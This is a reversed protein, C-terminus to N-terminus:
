EFSVQHAHENIDLFPHHAHTVKEGNVKVNRIIVGAVYREGSYGYIRSPNAGQGNYEINQLVINEIRNGPVPNYDKNWVVRIDFLRGLEFHEVRINDYTIHRVTNLDGANITMAGQYNEQPEHHELIDINEFRIHEIIDGNKHYNGHTGIMLPHAVDAWFSSNRVTIHRSDGTYDWRSGYIAISDDSTRLFIDDIDIFSSSMIDIGDSWGKCSFSKFNHIRIHESGGIYISYHPPNLTTIGEVEINSSFLIRVGRFATFRHFEALYVIGRGRITVDKVHDCVMSGVVAAGGAIYITKGSPIKLLTEEIYHLGPLFYLIEPQENGESRPTTLPRLLHEIRHIGPKVLIVNADDPSPANIEIPNAFLHLNNFRGGNIEISLKRPQDLQFSITNDTLQHAAIGYSLPRIISSTIEGLLYTIEVDVPGEMDFSAFSAQSVNHMDVNAEYAPLESWEGDAERIRVSFEKRQPIGKIEPHIHITM